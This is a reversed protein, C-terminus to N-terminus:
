LYAAQDVSPTAKKLRSLVSGTHWVADFDDENQLEVWSKRKEPKGNYAEIYKRVLTLEHKRKGVDATDGDEEWRAINTGSKIVGLAAKRITASLTGTELEVCCLALKAIDLEDNDDAYEQLITEEIAAVM